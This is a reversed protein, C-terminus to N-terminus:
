LTRDLFAAMKTFSDVRNGLKAIKHGEDEYRLYEVPHNRARLSSVIQDAETRPVRPDNALGLFGVKKASCRNFPTSSSFLIGVLPIDHQIGGDNLHYM